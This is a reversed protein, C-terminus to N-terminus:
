LLTSEKEPRGGEGAVLGRCNKVIIKSSRKQVCVRALM